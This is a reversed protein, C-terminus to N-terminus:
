KFQVIICPSVFMINLLKWTRLAFLQLGWCMLWNNEVSIGFDHAWIECKTRSCNWLFDRVAARYAYLQSNFNVRRLM